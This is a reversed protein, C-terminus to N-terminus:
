VQPIASPHSKKWLAKGWLCLKVVRPKYWRCVQLSEGTGGRSGEGGGGGTEGGGRQNERQWDKVVGRGCRIVLDCNWGWVISHWRQLPRPGPEELPQRSM